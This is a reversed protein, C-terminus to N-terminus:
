SQIESSLVSPFTSNTGPTNEVDTVDFNVLNTRCLPCDDHDKLWIKICEEHYVHNCKDTKPTAMKEGREYNDLCISCEPKTTMSRASELTSVWARAFVSQSNDEEDVPGPDKLISNLNRTGNENEVETICLCNDIRSKRDIEESVQPTPMGSQQSIFYAVAEQRLENRQLELGALHFRRQREAANQHSKRKLYCACSWFVWMLVLLVFFSLEM